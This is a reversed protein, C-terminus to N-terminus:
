HLTLTLMLSPLARVVHEWGAGASDDGKAVLTTGRVLVGMSWQDGVWLEYGLGGMLGYGSASHDEVLDGERFQLGASGAVVQVHFGLEDDFYWDLLVGLMSLTLEYELVWGEPLARRGDRSVDHSRVGTSSEGFIGGGIVLGSSITGGIAIEIASSTGSGSGSVTGPASSQFSSALHGAGIGLRLYFGDHRQISPDL